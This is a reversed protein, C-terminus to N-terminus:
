VQTIRMENGVYMYATGGKHADFSGDLVLPAASEINANFGESVRVEPHEITISEAGRTFIFDAQLATDNKKWDVLTDSAYRPLKVKFGCARFGGEVPQIPLQANAARAVYDDDKMNRDFSIEFESPEMADGSTLANAQDGIRFVLDQFRVKTMTSPGTAGAPFVAANNDFSKCAWEVDVTVQGKQTGSIVIKKAVAAGFRHRSVSKEFEIWKFIDLRDEITVVGGAEAGLVAEFLSLFNNYDLPHKTSGPAGFVGQDSPLQGGSGILAQDKIREWNATISENTIPIVAMGTASYATDWTAAAAMGMKGLFGLADAM